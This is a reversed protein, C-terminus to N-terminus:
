KVKIKFTVTKTASKHQVDGAATVRCTITYTGKKLKKKVTVTGTSPNIKFYKKYKKSRGRKVSVLKYSVKGKANSVTMVKSRSVKQTKKRLKRYKVKAKKGGKVKLTNSLQESFELEVIVDEAPMTFTTGEKIEGNVKVQTLYYGKDPKATITVLDGACATTLDVTATGNEAQSVTVSYGVKKFTAKIEAGNEVDPMTYSYSISTDEANLGFVGNSRFVAAKNQIFSNGNTSNDNGTATLEVTKGAYVLIVKDVIYGNEPKVTFQMEDTGYSRKNGTVTGHGDNSYTVDYYYYLNAACGNFAAENYSSKNLIVTSLKNSDAFLDEGLDVTKDPLKIRQINECEKFAEDGISEVNEPVTFDTLGMCRAFAESEIATLKSPLTLNKLNSCEYFTSSGMSTVSDPISVSELSICGWFVSGGLSTVKDPISISKLNICDSFAGDGIKTVTEPITFGTLSPNGSFAGDGIKTITGLFTFKTLQECSSFMYNSISTIKAPLTISTFSKCNGFAEDGISTVNAPISISKLSECSTFAKEGITRLSDPLTISELNVCGEFAANGISTVEGDFVVTKIRDRNNKWPCDDQESGPEAYGSGIFNAMDGYGSITLKGNNDLEWTLHTGCTNQAGNYKFFTELYVDSDSDPMTIICNEYSDISINALEYSVDNDEEPDYKWGFLKMYLIAYDDKHTIYLKIKESGYVRTKGSVAGYGYNSYEVDYYYHIIEKSIQPFADANYAQKNIAVLNLSSCGSFAETKLETVSYPILVQTLKTCNKFAYKGISTVGEPINVSALSKCNYFAYDGISNVDGSISVTKISDVYSGWPVRTDTKFNYMDGSGTITLTGSEDLSWTLDDGCKDSLNKLKFTAHITVEAGSDPMTIDYEGNSDPSLNTISDGNILTVKDVEYDDNPTVTIKNTDTGFSTAKGSVTGNGDNTYIVEYYFHVYEAPIDPFVNQSYLNKNIVISVLNTCDKFAATGIKTVSNPIKISQLGSSSTFAYNGISTLGEPLVVAQIKDSIDKWPVDASDNWNFMDGEGVITLTGNENWSWTLKTGCEGSLGISKFTANITVTKDSDPMKYKYAGNSDPNIVITNNGYKLTIKEIVYDTNPKISLEIEDNVYTVKKGTVTGNGDNTYKVDYYFHFINAPFDPFYDDLYITKNLVIYTLSFCEDFVNYGISDLSYPLIIKNLQSCGCFASDGISKIGEPMSVYTLSSCNAFAEEGISTVGKPITVSTLSSCQDFTYDAIKTVGSPISIETLSECNQFAGVSITKLSDPLDISKLNICNYFALYAISKVGNPISISTIGSCNIFAYQNFSTLGDPLVISKIDKKYDSWPVAHEGGWEFMDGKGSITLTGKGDWSWSLNTGCAGSTAIGNKPPNTVTQPPLTEKPTMDKNSEDSPAEESEKIETEQPEQKETEEPEQKETEKPEQKETEKPEQKETEKPEQKETEKPEQKETEKPEQKETEKPEQKETEKPEQKETEKPEQIETEKPAPKETAKVTQKETAKPEKNETTETKQTESPTATEDAMVEISPMMISVCMVFSLMAATIKKRKMM